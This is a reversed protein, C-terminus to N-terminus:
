NADSTPAARNRRPHAVLAWPIFVLYGAVLLIPSFTIDGNGLLVFGLVVCGVGILFLVWNRRGLDLTRSQSASNEVQRSRRARSPPRNM